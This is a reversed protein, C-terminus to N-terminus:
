SEFVVNKTANDMHFTDQEILPCEPVVLAWPRPSLYLGMLLAYISSEQM